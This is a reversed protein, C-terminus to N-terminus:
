ELFLKATNMRPSVWHPLNDPLIKKFVSSGMGFGREVVIPQLTRPDANDTLFTRLTTYLWAESGKQGAAKVV